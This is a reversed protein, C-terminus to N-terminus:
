PLHSHFMQAARLRAAGIPHATTQVIAMVNPTTCM